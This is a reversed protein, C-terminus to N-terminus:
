DFISKIEGINQHFLEFQRVDGFWDLIEQKAHEMETLYAFLRKETFLHISSYPWDLIDNVFGHKVPNYHIYLILQSLFAEDTVEKYKFPRQFLSGHRNYTSNVAKSYSNFLNSFQQNVIDGHNRSQQKILSQFEEEQRVRVMFHFHNPMLCFAFTEAFDNMYQFYKDLFYCYNREELFLNDNGNARNYIHYFSEAQFM